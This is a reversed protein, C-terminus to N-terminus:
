RLCAVQTVNPTLLNIVGGLWVCFAVLKWCSWTVDAHCETLHQVLLVGRTKLLRIAIQWVTELLVLDPAWEQLNEGFLRRHLLVWGAGDNLLVEDFKVYDGGNLADYDTLTVYFAVVGVVLFFGQKESSCVIFLIMEPFCRLPSFHKHQWSLLCMFKGKKVFASLTFIPLLPM